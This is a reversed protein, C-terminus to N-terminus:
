LSSLSDSRQRTSAIIESAIEYRDPSRTMTSSLSSTSSWGPRPSSSPQSSASASFSSISLASTNPVNFSGGFPKGSVIPTCQSPPVGHNAQEEIRFCGAQGQEVLGAFMRVLGVDDLQGRTYKERVKESCADLGFQEVLQAVTFPVDRIIGDVQGRASVTLVFTGLPLVYSRIVDKEDEEILMAATSFTGLDQFISALGNYVNSRILVERLINEVKDLWEKVPGLQATQIDPVGLRFWPRAPSTLGGMLGAALTRAAQTPTNNILKENPAPKNRLSPTDRFRRPLIYEALQKWVVVWASRETKLAEYRKLIRRKCGEPPPGAPPTSIM